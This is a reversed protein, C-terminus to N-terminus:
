LQAVKYGKARLLEVLGKPGLLHLSGVAVFYPQDELLYGEIKKLMGPHRSYLLVEDFESTQKASKNGEDVVAQMLKVDGSQWANVVGTIQEGMSGNEIASLGNELFAEQLLPPMDTLFKIQAIQSELEFVPKKQQKAVSILYADVGLNMDYGLRTFENVSLLAGVM